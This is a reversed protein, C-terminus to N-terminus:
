GRGECEAVGQAPNERRKPAKKNQSIEVGNKPTECRNWVQEVTVMPYGHSLRSKRNNKANWMQEVTDTPYGHSVRPIAM